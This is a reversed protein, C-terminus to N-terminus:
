TRPGWEQLVSPEQVAYGKGSLYARCAEYHCYDVPVDERCSRMKVDALALLGRGSADRAHVNAGHDLLVKVALKRGCRVAVHLATEGARNRAHINAGHELLREIILPGTKYDDDEPLEACFAMLPTNGHSDYHNPDVGADLLGEVLSLRFQLKEESSDLMEEPTKAKKKTRGQPTTPSPSVKNM